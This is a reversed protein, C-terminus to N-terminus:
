EKSVVSLINEISTNESWSDMEKGVFKTKVSKVYYDKRHETDLLKM